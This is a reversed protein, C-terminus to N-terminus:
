LLTHYQLIPFLPFIPPILSLLLSVHCLLTHNTSHAACSDRALAASDELRSTSTSALLVPTHRIMCTTSISILYKLFILLALTIPAIPRFHRKHCLPGRTYTRSPSNSLEKPIDLALPLQYVSVWTSSGSCTCSTTLSFLPGRTVAIRLPVLPDGWGVKTSSNETQSTRTGLTFRNKQKLYGDM